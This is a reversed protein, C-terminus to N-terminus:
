LSREELGWGGGGCHAEKGSGDVGERGDQVEEGGGGLAGRM